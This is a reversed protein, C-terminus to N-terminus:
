FAGKNIQFIAAQDNGYIKIFYQPFADFPSYKKAPLYQYIIYDIDGEKLMALKKEIPVSFNYLEQYKKTPAVPDISYSAMHVDVMTPLTYNAFTNTDFISKPPINNKIFDIAGMGGFKDPNIFDATPDTATRFFHWNQFEKAPYYSLHSFSPMGLFFVIILTLLLMTPYNKYEQFQFFELLGRYYKQAIFILLAILVVVPILWYYNANLWNFVSGSFVANYWKEILGTRYQGYFMWILFIGLFGDILYRLYKKTDYIKVLWRDLLVLIFGILIAWILYPWQGLNTYFRNVFVHSLYRRVIPYLGPINFVLPGSIFVGLIFILRRYKRFFVAILPLLIYSLKFYPDFKSLRDNTSGKTITPFMQMNQSITQSKAQLFLLIPVVLIMNTFITSLIRQFTIKFDKDKFKFILYFIGFLGMAFLWYFYQTWHILGMLTVMLSLIILHKYNSKYNTEKNFIYNLALGFCLPMLLLMNFSDPVPLRTYLYANTYYHFIIFLFLALISLTRTPLLKRFFWYWVLFAILTLVTTIERYLIFINTHSTKAFFALFVHWIPIGYAIDIQNKVFSLNGMSLPQGEIAKRMISLHDLPDGTFNTGLQDVTSLVFIILLFLFLYILNQWQFMNKWLFKEQCLKVEERSYELILSIIILVIITAFILFELGGITLGLLIGLLSLFLNFTLGLTLSLILGELFDKYTIRFIRILVFGPLFVMLLFSLSISFATTKFFSIFFAFLVGLIFLLYPKLIDSRKGFVNM